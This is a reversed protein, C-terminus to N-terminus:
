ETTLYFESLATYVAGRPRLDSKYLVVRRARFELPAFAVTSSLCAQLAKGDIAKRIRGLTLHAKFGRTEPKFGIPALANQVRDVLHMLEATNGALGAWLVRPRKIGPFVGMGQVALEFPPLGDLARDMAGAIPAIDTDKIDGFFKLTLHINEPRVWSMKVGSSRLSQQLGSLFQAVEDPITLAIFARLTKAM